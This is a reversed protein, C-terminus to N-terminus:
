VPQGTRRRFLGIDKIQIRREEIQLGHQDHLPEGKEKM